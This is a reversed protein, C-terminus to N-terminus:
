RICILNVDVFGGMVFSFSTISIVVYSLKDVNYLTRTRTM